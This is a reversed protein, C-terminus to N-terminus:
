IFFYTTLVIPVTGHIRFVQVGSLQLEGGLILRDLSYSRLHEQNLATSTETYLNEEAFCHKFGLRKVANGTHVKGKSDIFQPPKLSLYYLEHESIPDSVFRKQYWIPVYHNNRYEGSM